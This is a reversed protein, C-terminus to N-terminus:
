QKRNKKAQLYTEINANIHRPDESRMAKWLTIFNGVSLSSIMMLPSKFCKAIMKALLWLGSGGALAKEPHSPSPDAHGANRIETWEDRLARVEEAVQDFSGQLEKEMREFDRNRETLSIHTIEYRDRLEQFSPLYLLDAKKLEAHVGDM